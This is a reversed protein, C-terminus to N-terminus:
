LGIRFIAPEGSLERVVDSAGPKYSSEQSKGEFCPGSASSAQQGVTVGKVVSPHQPATTQEPDPDPIVLDPKPVSHSPYLFYVHM